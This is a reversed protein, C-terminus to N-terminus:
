KNLCIPLNPPASQLRARRNQASSECSGFNRRNILPKHSEQDESVQLYDDIEVPEARLPNMAAVEIAGTQRFTKRTIAFGRPRKPRWKM